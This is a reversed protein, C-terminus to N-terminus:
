SVAGIIQVDKVRVYPAQMSGYTKFERSVADINKFLDLLNIGVMTENLPDNIEGNVILNGHLILGSFDGTSINPSDGTYDFLIGEKVDERIEKFSINGNQLIFNTTSISPISSYSSRSANGTSEVGEKGATYSNHLLGTKLFKGQEFIKKNKCPVGEGDFIASGVAGDVVGNDEISLFKSGIIEDRKDVLFSRRYQFTEGNIASAIPRLILQLTGKPTLIIPVKMNRIKKRNLNRKAEELATNAIETANIKELTRESQWEYGFSTENSVKDKVIIHSSISCNTDKGSIELGNSNFVYTKSYNSLFSGSQSIAKEDQECVEILTNIYSLSDEIQLDKLNKDFLGNVEPYKQYSNPLDQFDPDPTSVKMMKLASNCLEEVTIREVKNSFAFGLAGNKNIVRISLGHDEGVESNKVSNEEIDISIYRDKEFFVESRIIENTKQEIIKFVFNALHYIDFDKEM